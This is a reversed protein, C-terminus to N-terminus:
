KSPTFKIQYVIYSGNAALWFTGPENATYNIEVAGLKSADAKQVENGNFLLSIYRGEAVGKPSVVISVTGPVSTEFAYSRDLKAREDNAKTSATVAKWVPNAACFAGNKQSFATGDKLTLNARQLRGSVAHKEAGGHIYLGDLEVLKDAIVEKNAYKGFNWVKETSVKTQAMMTVTAILAIATMLYKKM